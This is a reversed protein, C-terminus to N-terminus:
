GKKVGNVIKIFSEASLSAGGVLAGDIDEQAALLEINDPKVSGGYIIRVERAITESSLHALLKRIFLHVEQAQEPTANKGTGIAWVPEYAIVLTKLDAAQLGQLAGTTQTELVRYTKQSEREALTEGICVVPVLGAKLAAKLRKNVTADTEGFYQRRESHGILVHTCGADKLHEPSIEGTFAGKEEWHLNQGGLQIPSGKLAESVVSLATFPPVVLIEPGEFPKSLGDALARVLAVSGKLCLNMKWNGAILPRRQPNTM